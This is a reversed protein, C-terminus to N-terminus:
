IPHTEGYKDIARQLDMGIKKWDGAISGIAASKLKFKEIGPKRSRYGFLYAPAALGDLFGNWFANKRLNQLFSIM